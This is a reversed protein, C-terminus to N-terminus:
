RIPLWFRSWPLWIREARGKVNGRPVFPKPREADADVFTSTDLATTAARQALALATAKDPCLGDKCTLRIVAKSQTVGFVFTHGDDGSGYYGGDAVGDDAALGALSDRVAAVKDPIGAEPALWVELELGYRDDKITAELRVDDFEALEPPTVPIEPLGGIDKPGLLDVMRRRDNGADPIRAAVTAALEAADPQTRCAAKGCELVVVFSHAHDALVMVYADPGDLLWADPGADKLATRTVEAPGFRALAADRVSELGEDPNRFARLRVQARAGASEGGKAFRREWYHDKANHRGTWHSSYTADRSRELMLRAEQEPDRDFRHLVEVLRTALAGDSDCLGNGCRFEVVAPPESLEVVVTKAEQGDIVALQEIRPSLATVRTATEDGSEASQALDSLSTAASKAGTTHQVRTAFVAAAGLSPARWVRLGLDHEVARHNATHTVKDYHPDTSTGDLREAGAHEMEFLREETLDRLDRATLLRDAQVADVSVTWHLSDHSRNRNDGMVLLHGEPVKWIRPKATSIDNREEATLMYRVVYSKDGATEQYLTCNSIEKTTKEDLCRQQLREHPLVEFSSEGARKVAVQRGVVRIEDGPLGMVRKIFDEEENLPFRFVIVDGREIEGFSKGVVTNTFPIQIGYVFKNVFIHDGTRLTPMMSGSPIKFPEYLCSRLGLAIFVAVAINEATERFASKRAFSAHRHLLEDLRKAQQELADIDLEPAAGLEDITTICERVAEAPEAGLRGSYRKLIKRAEKSLVKAAAKVHRPSLKEAEDARSGKGGSAKSPKAGSDKPKAAGGKSPTAGSDKPKPEAGSDEAPKAGADEAAGGSPENPSM